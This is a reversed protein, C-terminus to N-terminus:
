RGARFGKMFNAHIEALDKEAKKEGATHIRYVRRKSMWASVHTLRNDKTILAEFGEGGMIKTEEKTLKMNDGYFELLDDAQDVISGDYPFSYVYIRYAGRKGVFQMDYTRKAGPLDPVFGEPVVCSYRGRSSRFPVGRLVREGKDTVSLGAAARTFLDRVNKLRTRRVSCAVRYLRSKGFYTRVVIARERKKGEETLRVAIGEVEYGPLKMGRKMDAERVAIGKYVTRGKRVEGGEKFEDALAAKLQDSTEYPNDRVYLVAEADYDEDYYRVLKTWAGSGEARQMEWGYVGSFAIGLDRNDYKGAAAPAGGGKKGGKKKDPSKGQAWVPVLLILLLATM